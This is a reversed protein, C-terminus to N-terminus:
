PVSTVLGARPGSVEEFIVLPRVNVVLSVFAFTATACAAYALSFFSLAPEVEGDLAGLELHDADGRGVAPVRGGVEVDRLATVL